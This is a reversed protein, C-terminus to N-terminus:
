AENLHFKIEARLKQMLQALDATEYPRPPVQGWVPRPGAADNRFRAIIHVHLQAVANGLAAVNLKDCRTMRKLAQAVDSIEVMLQIRDADDLDIIEVMDARRPVLVLWPYNADNMVLVHSLPLEGLVIGDRALQPHLSWVSTEAPMERGGPTRSLQGCALVAAAKCERPTRGIYPGPPQRHVLWV